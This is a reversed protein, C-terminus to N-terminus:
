TEDLPEPEQLRLNEFMHEVRDFTGNRMMHQLMLRCYYCLDFRGPYLRRMNDITIQQVMRASLLGQCDRAIHYRRGSTPAIYVFADGRWQLPVAQDVRVPQGFAIPQQNRAIADAPNPTDAADADDADGPEEDPQESPDSDRSLPPTAGLIEEVSRPSHYAYLDGSGADDADSLGLDVLNPMSEPESEAEDGLPSGQNERARFWSLFWGVLTSLLSRFGVVRPHDPHTLCTAVAIAFITILLILTVARRNPLRADSPLSESRPQGLTHEQDDTAGSGVLM